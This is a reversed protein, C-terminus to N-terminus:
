NEEYFQTTLNNSNIRYLGQSDPDQFYYGVSDILTQTDFNVKNLDYSKKQVERFHNFEIKAQSTTVIFDISLWIMFSILSISILVELLTSGKLKTPM